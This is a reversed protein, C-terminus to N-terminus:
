SAARDLVEMLLALGPLAVCWALGIWLWFRDTLAAGREGHLHRQWRAPGLLFRVLPDFRPDSNLASRVRDPGTQWRREAVSPLLRRLEHDIRLARHVCYAATAILLWSLALMQAGIEM